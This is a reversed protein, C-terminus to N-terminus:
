FDMQIVHSCSHVVDHLLLCAHASNFANMVDDNYTRQRWERIRHFYHLKVTTKKGQENVRARVREQRYRRPFFAITNTQVVTNWPLIENTSFITWHDHAWQTSDKKGKKGNVGSWDCKGEDTSANAVKKKTARCLERWMNIDILM